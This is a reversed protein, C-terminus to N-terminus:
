SANFVTTGDEQPLSEVEDMFHKIKGQLVWSRLRNPLYCTECQICSKCGPDLNHLSYEEEMMFKLEYKDEESLARKPFKAMDLHMKIVSSTIQNYQDEQPELVGRMERPSYKEGFKGPYSQRLEQSM